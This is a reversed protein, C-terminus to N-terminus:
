WCSAWTTTPRSPARTPAAPPKCRRFRRGCRPRPAPAGQRPESPGPRLRPRPGPRPRLPGASGRRPRGPRRPRRARRARRASEPELELARELLPEAEAARGQDILARALGARAEADNPARELARRFSEEAKPWDGRRSALEARALWAEPLEPALNTAETLALEAEDLRGIYSRAIGLGTQARAHSLRYPTGATRKALEAFVLEAEEFTCDGPDHEACLLFYWGVGLSAQLEDYDTTLVSPDPASGDPPSCIDQAAQFAQYGEELTVRDGTEQFEELLVRGLGWRVYASKPSAAVANRFLTLEDRWVDIRARSRLGLAAALVLSAALLAPKPIRPRDVLLAWALAPALAAVYLFRESLPFRGVSEFGILAPMLAALPILLAFCLTRKRAFAAGSCPPRTSGSRSGPRSWRRTERAAGGPAGRPLPEAQGALGAPRARRRLARRAARARAREARLPARDGPRLRRLPEPLGARAAGVLRRDRLRVLRLRADGRAGRANPAFPARTPRAFDLAMALPVLCLASEKALLGLALWLAAGSPAGLSGADRWRRFADLGALVCLGALPDNVASIWAVAEVQLPHLAFLAAGAGAAWASGGANGLLGLILRYAVATAALHLALSVAHFGLPAEVGFSGLGNGLANGLFLAVSALPRWYGVGTSSEGELFAWFPRKLSALLEMPGGLAPNAVALHLDDYVFQGELARAFVALAAALALALPLVAPSRAAM